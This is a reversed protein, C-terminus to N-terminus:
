EVTVQVTADACRADAQFANKLVTYEANLRSLTEAWAEESLDKREIVFTISNETESIEEGYVAKSVSRIL